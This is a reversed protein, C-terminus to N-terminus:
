AVFLGEFEGDDMVIDDERRRRGPLRDIIGKWVNGM